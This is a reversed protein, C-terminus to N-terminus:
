ELRVGNARELEFPGPTASLYVTQGIRELFENFKSRGTTWRVPCGSGLSDAPLAQAVHEEYMGGIQPIIAHSEDIVLPVDEPFYDLLWNPVM